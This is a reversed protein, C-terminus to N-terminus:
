YVENFGVKFVRRENPYTVGVWANNEKSTKGGRTIIFGDAVAIATEDSWNNSIDKLLLLQNVM